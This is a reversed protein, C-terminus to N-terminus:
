ALLGAVLEKVRERSDFYEELLPQIDGEIIERYWAEDPLQGDSPCFFSHGIRFGPGLDREKEIVENLKGVNIRIRAIIDDTAKHKRLWDAFGPFVFAPNLTKFAFRRRLAYDVMALSRDATNMTGIFHINAPLYFTEELGESYTLPIAHAIGRKDAEILLLLEGFIKALNGRNIEDIIFVWDRNPDNQARVAFQYLVGDHRKLGGQTPRFGQVFDEYGYSPHFQVMGVRNEDKEKMLAYAIRRAVFTKGVGPPGQLILAKKRQLRTLISELQEKEMFLDKLADDLTFPRQPPPPISDQNQNAGPTELGSGSKNQPQDLTVEQESDWAENVHTVVEDTIKNHYFQLFFKLVQNFPSNPDTDCADAYKFSDVRCPMWSRASDFPKLRDRNLAIPLATQLSTFAEESLKKLTNRIAERKESDICLTVSRRKGETMRIKKYTDVWFRDGFTFRIDVPDSESEGCAVMVYIGTPGKTAPSPPKRSFCVGLSKPLWNGDIGAGNLRPEINEALEQVLQGIRAALRAKAENHFNKAATGTGGNEIRATFYNPIM